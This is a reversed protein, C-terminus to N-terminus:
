FWRVLKLLKTSVKQDNIYDLKAKTDSNIGQQQVRVILDGEAIAESNSLIKLNYFKRDSIEITENSLVRTYKNDLYVDVHSNTNNVIVFLDFPLDAKKDEFGNIYTDNANM